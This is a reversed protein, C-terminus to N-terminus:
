YHGFYFNLFIGFKMKEFETFCNTGHSLIALSIENSHDCWLNEDVSEFTIVVKCTEM